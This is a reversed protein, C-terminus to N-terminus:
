NGETMIRIFEDFSVRQYDSPIGFLDKELPMEEMQVLEYELLAEESPVYYLVPLGPFYEFGNIHDSSLDKFYYWTQTEGSERDTVLLKKAKKGAITRKGSKKKWQYKTSDSVFADDLKQLAFKGIPTELLLYSKHYKRHRIMIQQGLDNTNNEIRIMSDNVYAIMQQSPIMKRLNTDVPQFRYTLKGTFQQQKQAAFRSSLPLLGLCACVVIYKVGRFYIYFKIPEMTQTLISLICPIPARRKM